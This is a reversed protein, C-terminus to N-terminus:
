HNLAIADDSRHTEIRCRLHRVIMAGRQGDILQVPASEVEIDAVEV